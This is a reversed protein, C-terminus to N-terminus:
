KSIREKADANVLSIIQAATEVTLMRNVRLWATGPASVSVRMEISPVDADIANEAANPLLDTPTTGLADAMARLSKPTPLVKGRVYTSISDRPLNAHRALDSQNWNKRDLFNALRRGFEQKSLHKPLRDADPLEDLHFRPTKTM